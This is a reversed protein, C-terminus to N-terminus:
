CGGVMGGSSPVNSTVAGVAGSDSGSIFTTYIVAIALVAIVVWMIIKGTEM